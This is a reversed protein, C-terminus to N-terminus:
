LSNLYNIDKDISNSSGFRTYGGINKAFNAKKNIVKNKSRQGTKICRMSVKGNKDLGKSKCWRRFSGAKGSAKIKASVEQIWRKKGFETNTSYKNYKNKKKGFQQLNLPFLPEYHLNTYNYLYLNTNPLGYVSGMNEQIQGDVRIVSISVGTILMFVLITADTGWIDTGDLFNNILDSSNNLLSWLSDLRDRPIVLRASSLRHVFMGFINQSNIWATYISKILNFTYEEGHQNTIQDLSDYLCRGDTRSALNLFRIGNFVIERGYPPPAFGTPLINSVSRPPPSHLEPSPSSPKKPQEPIEDPDQQSLPLNTPYLIDYIKRPMIVKIPTEESKYPETGKKVGKNSSVHATVGVGKSVIANIKAANKDPHIAYMHFEGAKKMENELVIRALIGKLMDMSTKQAKLCLDSENFRINREEDDLTSNGKTYMGEPGFIRELITNWVGAISIKTSTIVFAGYKSCDLNYFTNTHLVYEEVFKNNVREIIYDLLVKKDDKVVIKQREGPELEMDKLYSHFFPSGNLELNFKQEGASDLKLSPSMFSYLQGAEAIKKVRNMIPKFKDVSLPAEIWAITPTTPVKGSEWNIIELLKQQIKGPSVDHKYKESEAKIKQALEPTNLHHLLYTIIGAESSGVYKKIGPFLDEMIKLPFQQNIGLNEDLLQYAKTLDPVTDKRAPKIADEFDKVFSSQEPPLEKLLKTINSKIINLQKNKFEDSIGLNKHIGSNIFDKIADLQSLLALYIWTHEYGSSIDFEIVPKMNERFYDEDSIVVWKGNNIKEDWEDANVTDEEKNAANKRKPKCFGGDGRKVWTCGSNKCDQEILGSCHNEQTFDKVDWYIHVNEKLTGDAEEIISSNVVTGYFPKDTENSKVRSGIKPLATKIRKPTDPEPQSKRKNSSAEQVSQVATAEQVAQRAATQTIEYKDILPQYGITDIKKSITLKDNDLENKDPLTYIPTRGTITDTSKTFKKLQDQSYDIAARKDFIMTYQETKMGHPIHKGIIVGDHSEGYISVTYKKGLYGTDYFQTYSPPVPTELKQRKSSRREKDGECVIKGSICEVTKTSKNYINVFYEGEESKCLRLNMGNIYVSFVKKGKYMKMSIDYKEEGMEFKCKTTDIGSTLNCDHTPESCPAGFKSGRNNELYLIDKLVSKM